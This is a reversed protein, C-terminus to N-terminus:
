FDDEDNPDTTVGFQLGGFNDPLNLQRSTDSVKALYTEPAPCIAGSQFVLTVSSLPREDFRVAVLKDDQHSASIM